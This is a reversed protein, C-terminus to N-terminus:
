APDSAIPLNKIGWVGPFGRWVVEGALRPNKLRQAILHMGEEVNAQALFMGLCIHIGRGFAINGAKESREPDFKDPHAFVTGDRGSISLPFILMDDKPFVVDRYEFTETVVRYSNSPSTHRLQEKVAKKCYEYDTACRQWIEPHQLMSHMMLTLLNKSTDYGAAFLLILMQRLETDSLNGTNNSAILADLLDGEGGAAGREAILGDVFRWLTQYAAEIVPMDEVVLNFSSGHIELSSMIESLRDTPAGILACMVRVPFNAAFETFDFAGKPAWEDLLSAVTSRMLPRLRKVNGPGLAASVSGRLRAHREGSSCLMQDEAFEGWGTGRAGMIDVINGGPMKLKDDRRLLEDIARYETVVTGVNSAALWDHSARAAAFFPMPDTGFEATEIPLHALKLDGVATMETKGTEPLINSTMQM